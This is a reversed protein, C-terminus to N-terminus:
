QGDDLETVPDEYDYDGVQSKPAARWAARLIELNPEMQSGGIAKVTEALEEIKPRGLYTLQKIHTKNFIGQDNQKTAKKAM